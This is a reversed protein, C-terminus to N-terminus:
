FRFLSAFGTERSSPGFSWNLFRVLSEQKLRELLTTPQWLETLDSGTAGIWAQAAPRAQERL